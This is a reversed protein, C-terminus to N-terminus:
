EEERRNRREVGGSRERLSVLVISALFFHNSFFMIGMTSFFPFKKCHIHHIFPHYIFTFDSPFTLHMFSNGSPEASSLTAEGSVSAHITPVPLVFGPHSPM